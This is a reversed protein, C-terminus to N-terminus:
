WKCSSMPFIDDRVLYVSRTLKLSAYLPRKEHLILNGSARYYELHMLDGGGGGGGCVCVWLLVFIPPFPLPWRPMEFCTHVCALCSFARSLIGQLCLKPVVLILRM